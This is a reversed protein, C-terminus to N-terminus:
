VPQDGPRPGCSCAECSCCLPFGSTNGCDGGGVLELIGDSLPEIELNEILTANKDGMFKEM